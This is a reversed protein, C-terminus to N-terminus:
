RLKEFVSDHIVRQYLIKGSKMVSSLFSDAKLAEKEIERPTSILIDAKLSYEKAFSSIQMELEKKRYSQRTIILLDIDSYVNNTGRAVSGFLIIMEPETVHIAYSVIKELAGTMDIMAVEDPLL